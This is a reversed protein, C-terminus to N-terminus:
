LLHILIRKSIVCKKRIRVTNNSYWYKVTVDKGDKAGSLDENEPKCRSYWCTGQIVPQHEKTDMAVPNPFINKGEADTLTTLIFEDYLVSQTLYIGEEDMPCDNEKDSSSSSSNLNKKEIEINDEGGAQSDENVKAEVEREVSGIYVNFGAEEAAQEFAKALLKDSRKLDDMKVNPSTYSYNLMYFFPYKSNVMTDSKLHNAVQELYPKAKEAETPTLKGNEVALRREQLIEATIDEEGNYVLSFSISAQHGSIVPQFKSSVDNYWALYYSESLTDTEPQFMIDHDKYNALVDGGNFDSPLIIFV